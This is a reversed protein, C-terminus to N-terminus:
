DPAWRPRKPGRSTPARRCRPRRPEWPAGGSPGRVAQRFSRCPARPASIARKSVCFIGCRLTRSKQKPASDPEPHPVTKPRISRAARLRTGGQVERDLRTPSAPRAGNPIRYEDPQKHHIGHRGQLLQGRRRAGGFVQLRIQGPESRQFDGATTMLSTPLSIRRYRWM